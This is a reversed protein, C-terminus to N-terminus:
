TSHHNYTGPNGQFVMHLAQQGAGFAGDGDQGGGSASGGVGGGAINLSRRAEQVKVTAHLGRLLKKVNDHGVLADLEAFTDSTGGDMMADGGGVGDVGIGSSSSSSGSSGSSGSSSSGFFDSLTLRKLRAEEGAWSAEDMQEVTERLRAAQRRLADDVM